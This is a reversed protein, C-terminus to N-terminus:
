AFLESYSKIRVLFNSSKMFIYKNAPCQDRGTNLRADLGLISFEDREDRFVVVVCLFIIDSM